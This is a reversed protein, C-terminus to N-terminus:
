CWGPPGKARWRSRLPKALAVGAGTLWVIKGDLKGM